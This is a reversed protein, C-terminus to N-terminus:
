TMWRSGPREDFHGSAPGEATETENGSCREYADADFSAMEFPWDFSALGSGGYWSYYIFVRRPATKMMM